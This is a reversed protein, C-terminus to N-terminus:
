MYMYMYMYMYMGNQKTLSWYSYFSKGANQLFRSIFIVTSEFPVTFFVISFVPFNIIRECQKTLM